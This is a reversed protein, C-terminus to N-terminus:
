LIVIERTFSNLFRQGDWVTQFDLAQGIPVIRDIGRTQLRDVAALLEERSYGFYSLTQDKDVVVEAIAGADDLVLEYFFGGGCHRERFEAIMRDLQVRSVLERDDVQAVEEEAAMWLGTALKQVRTAPAVVYQKAAIAREVMTWFVRQAEAVAESAGTWLILRPSSCAMQDFWFSDNYFREALQLLEKDQLDLVAEAKIMSMSFRDPFVLENAVPALAIQRIRNVTDDGGWVVRTHCLNSFKATTADDHAYTLIITRVAIERFQPKSLEELMGALLGNMQLQEKSSIRIVNRNGALLSLIWSYIFITDVNSPALHFVTGRARVVRGAMEDAWVNRMETIHARRMWFGLAVIEPHQRMKVFRQSLAQVFLLADDTFPAFPRMGQLQELAEEGGQLPWYFRM